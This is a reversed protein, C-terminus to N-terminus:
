FRHFIHILYKEESVYYHVEKMSNLCTCFVRPVWQVATKKSSNVSLLFESLLFNVFSGNWLLLSHVHNEKKLQSFINRLSTLRRHMFGSQHSTWPDINFITTLYWMCRYLQQHSPFTILPYIHPSHCNQPHVSKNM